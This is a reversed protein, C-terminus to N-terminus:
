KNSLFHHFWGSEFYVQHNVLVDFNKLYFNALYAWFMVYEAYFFLIINNFISNRKFINFPTFRLISDVIYGSSEVNYIYIPHIENKILIKRLTLYIKIADYLTYIITKLFNNLNIEFVKVTLDKLNCSDIELKLLNPSAWLKYNEKVRKNIFSKILVIKRLISSFPSIIIVENYDGLACTLQERPYESLNSFAIVLISKNNM